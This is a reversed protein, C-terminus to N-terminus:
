GAYSEPPGGSSATTKASSNDHHKEAVYLKAKDESISVYSNSLLKMFWLAQHLWNPEFSYGVKSSGTGPNRGPREVGQKSPHWLCAARSCRKDAFNPSPPTPTLSGSEGDARLSIVIGFILAEIRQNVKCENHYLARSEKRRYKRRARKGAITGM